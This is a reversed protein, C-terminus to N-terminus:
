AVGGHQRVNPQEHESSDVRQTRGVVASPHQTLSESYEITGIRCGRGLTISQGRVIDATTNDLYITDGEIMRVQSTGRCRWNLFGAKRSCGDEDWGARIVISSGGIEDLECHGRSRIRIREASVLGRITGTGTLKFHEAAVGGDLNAGGWLRFHLCNVRGAASVDGM